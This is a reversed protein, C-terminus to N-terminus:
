CMSIWIRDLNMKFRGLDSGIPNPDRPDQTLDLRNDDREEGQNRHCSGICHMETGTSLARSGRVLDVDRLAMLLSGENGINVEAFESNKGLTSVMAADKEMRQQTSQHVQLDGLPIIEDYGSRSPRAILSGDHGPAVVHETIAFIQNVMLVYMNKTERDRRLKSESRGIHVLEAAMVDRPRSLSLSIDKTAQKEEIMKVFWWPRGTAFVMYAISLGIVLGSAYGMKAFKWDFWSPSDDGEHFSTPSSPDPAEDMDCSESLPFGCLGPNGAYSDNQFTNFQTGRPVPGELQNHSLNLVSLSKLSAMQMPIQGVLKNSSLDLSELETLNALSSPIGGTLNNHSINLGKLSNLKGVIAPIGGQFRNSSLDITTFITLVRELQLDIGKMTLIISEYCAYYSSNLLSLYKVEVTVSNNEGHIMARFNNLYRTPLVGTLQNHSLDLIRLKSFPARTKTNGIPGWFRNSRLILVRLEPLIELWYPFTDNIHNNGIDLVELYRCNILSPSLPGELQNGNLNLSRLDCSKAFMQPISGNFRNMRMDFVKLASNGFCQPIEGSLNNNGVDIVHLSFCNILSPPLPGELKNGNLKLFTLNCDKAYTQPIIGQFNNMRLDLFKVTSNVLCQPIQGSFSNNSMELYQISSLNCFSSPIEGTLYNNSISFITMLPPLDLLRGRLLNSDLYLNKLNKWPLRKISRLFNQSLDLYSLTHIGVDWMWGPVRGHIQNESLDLWELQLQTKLIVPFKSIKCASLGLRSLNLFSSSVTLKTTLSLSNNSLVLWKLNKLKAFDYLEVTGSLKNSSLDLRTLNVLEYVSSPVSGSLQNHRFDVQKLSTLSFIRSPITGKLSNFYLYVTALNALEGVSSPIQGTLQNGGFNLYSLKSQNTFMNPIEGIFSNNSLDLYVLQTLNGLSPPISGTFNSSSLNLLTLSRLQSFGSSIKSYNFDNSGLNLKQLRPLFFLSSNSSISGHLWSCSLDLGIVQGTVMDCTVGDWSSCCDADEKWYKMKPYSQQYGDCQSSSTKAFSFLQKFQLLASSQEQSCLKASCQFFLLSLQLCIVLQYPQTLYGM